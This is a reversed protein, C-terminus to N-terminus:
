KLKTPTWWQDSKSHQSIVEALKVQLDSINVTPQPLTDKPADLEHKINHLLKYSPTRPLTLPSEHEGKRTKCGSIQSGQQYLM